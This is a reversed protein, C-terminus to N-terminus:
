EGDLEHMKMHSNMSQLLASFDKRVIKGDKDTDFSNFVALYSKRLHGKMMGHATTPRASM